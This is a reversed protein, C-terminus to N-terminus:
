SCKSTSSTGQIPPLILTNAIGSGESTNAYLSISYSISPNLGTLIITSVNASFIKLLPIM